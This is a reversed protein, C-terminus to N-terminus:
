TSGKDTSLFLADEGRAERRVGGTDRRYEGDAGAVAEEGVAVPLAPAVTWTGANLIPWNVGFGRGDAIDLPAQSALVRACEGAGSFWGRSIVSECDDGGDTDSWRLPLRRILAVTADIRPDEPNKRNSGTM